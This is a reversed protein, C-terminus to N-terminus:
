DGEFEVLTFVPVGRERIRAAGGIDPLDIIFACSVPVAGAKEILDIAALATGGTAILDDLILVRQGPKVADVHMEIIDSGYELDYEVSITKAPLKGQKRIPIFGVGLALAVAPGIIFGRAEIGAIVDIKQGQFEGALTDVVERLGEADGFLTTIDRFMIGTKPYDPITRILSKISM